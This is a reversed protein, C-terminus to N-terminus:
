AYKTARHRHRGTTSRVSNMLSGIEAILAVTRVLGPVNAV